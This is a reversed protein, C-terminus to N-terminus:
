LEADYKTKVLHMVKDRAYIMKENWSQHSNDAVVHNSHKAYANRLRRDLLKAEEASEEMDNRYRNSAGDASTVLHLVMDYRSNIYNEDSGWQKLLTNWQDERMHAKGNMLGASILVVAREKSGAAMQVFSREQQLQLEMVLKEYHLRDKGDNQLISPLKFGSNHLLNHASILPHVNFGATTLAKTILQTAEGKGGCTGGCICIRIVYTEGQHWGTTVNKLATSRSSKARLSARESATARSEDSMYNISRRTRYPDEAENTATPTSQQIAESSTCLGM